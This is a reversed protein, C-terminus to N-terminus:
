VQVLWSYTPGAPPFSFSTTVKGGTGNAVYQNVVRAQTYTASVASIRGGYGPRFSATRWINGAPPNSGASSLPIGQGSQVLSTATAPIINMWIPYTAIVSSDANHFEWWFNASILSATSSTVRCSVTLGDNDSCAYQWLSLDISSTVPFTQFTCNYLTSYITFTTDVGGTNITTIITQGGTSGQGHNCRLVRKTAALTGPVIVPKRYAYDWANM